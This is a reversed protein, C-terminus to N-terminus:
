GGVGRGMLERVVRGLGLFEELDTPKRFYYAAGLAKVRERDHPADSSTMVVVPVQGCAEHERILRLLEHGSTQPLNLDLLMLDPCPSAAGGVTRLYEKVGAGDHAVTLECEVQHEALALRVLHVDADNDEAVFVRLRGM